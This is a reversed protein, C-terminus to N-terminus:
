HLGLSTSGEPWRTRPDISDDVTAPDIGLRRLTEPDPYGTQPIGESKQFALLAGNYTTGPPADRPLFVRARLADGIETRTSSPGASAHM